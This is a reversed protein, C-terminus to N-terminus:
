YKQLNFAENEEIQNLCSSGSNFEFIYPRILPFKSCFCQFSPARSIKTPNRFNVVQLCQESTNRNVAKQGAKKHNLVLKGEHLKPEKACKQLKRISLM